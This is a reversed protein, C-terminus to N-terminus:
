ANYPRYDGGNLTAAVSASIADINEMFFVKLKQFM